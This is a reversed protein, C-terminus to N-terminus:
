LRGQTPKFFYMYQLVFQGDRRAGTGSIGLEGEGETFLEEPMLVEGEPALCM